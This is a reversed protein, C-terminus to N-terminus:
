SEAEMEKAWAEFAAALGGGAKRPTTELWVERNRDCRGGGLWKRHIEVQKDSIKIGIAIKQQKEAKGVVKSLIPSESNTTWGKAYKPAVVQLTIQLSILLILYEQLEPLASFVVRKNDADTGYRLKAIAGPLEMVYESGFTPPSLNTSAHIKVTHEESSGDAMNQTLKMNITTKHPTMARALLDHLTHGKKASAGNKNLEAVVKSLGPVQIGDCSFPLDASAM